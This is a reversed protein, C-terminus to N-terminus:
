VARFEWAKRVPSNQGTQTCVHFSTLCPIPLLKGSDCLRTKEPCKELKSEMGKQILCVYMPFAKREFLDPSDGQLLILSACPDKVGSLCCVLGGWMGIFSEKRKSEVSLASQGFCLIEIPTVLKISDKIQKMATPLMAFASHTFCVLVFVAVPITLIFLFAPLKQCAQDQFRVWPSPCVRLRSQTFLCHGLLPETLNFLWVKLVCQHLHSAHKCVVCRFGIVM